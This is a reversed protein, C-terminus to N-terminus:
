PKTRTITIEKLSDHDRLLEAGAPFNNARLLFAVIDLYTQADLSDPENQPMTQRITTSLDDVTRNNWSMLFPEGVLAPGWNGTLDPKHCGSCSKGYAEQGRTAQDTSYVGDWTTKASSSEATTISWLAFGLVVFRLSNLMRWHKKRSM